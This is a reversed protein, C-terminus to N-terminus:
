ASHLIKSSCHDVRDERMCHDPVVDVRHSDFVTMAQGAPEVVFMCALEVRSQAAM